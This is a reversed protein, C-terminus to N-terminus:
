VLRYGSAAMGCGRDVAPRNSPVRGPVWYHWSTLPMSNSAV